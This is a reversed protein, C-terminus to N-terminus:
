KTSNQISDIVAICKNEILALMRPRGSIISPARKLCSNKDCRTLEERKLIKSLDDASIPLYDKRAAFANSVTNFVDDKKVMIIQNNFDRYGIYYKINQVYTQVDPAIVLDGTGLLNFFEALFEKYPEKIEAEKDQSSVVQYLIQSFNNFWFNWNEKTFFGCEFCMNCFIKATIRLHLFTDILRSAELGAPTREQIFTRQIEAIIALYNRELYRIFEAVVYQWIWPNRQFIALVEGNLKNKLFVKIYRLESSRLQGVLRTEGTFVCGGRIEYKKINDKGGYKARPTKDGYARILSRINRMKEDIEKRSGELNFDDIVLTDDYFIEHLVRLSAETARVSNLRENEPVFPAFLVKCCSSKLTASEGVIMLCHALPYGADTFLADTYSALCYFIMPVMVDPSGVNFINWAQNLINCFNQRDLPPPLCKPSRCDPLGGHYFIRCGNIAQGWGWYDYAWREEIQLAKLLEGVLREFKEGANRYEDTFILFEPAQTRIQSLLDRWNNYNVYFEKAKGNDNTLQILLKKTVNGNIDIFNECSKITVVFDTFRHWKGDKDQFYYGNSCGLFNGIWVPENRSIPPLVQLNATVLETPLSTIQLSNNPVPLANNIANSQVTSVIESQQVVHNNFFNTNVLLQNPLGVPSSHNACQVQHYLDSRVDDEVLQEIPFNYSQPTEQKLANFNKQNRELMSKTIQERHILYSSSPEPPAVDLGAKKAQEYKEKRDLYDYDIDVVQKLQKREEPPVIDVVQTLKKKQTKFNEDSM